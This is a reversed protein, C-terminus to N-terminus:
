KNKDNIKELKKIFSYDELEGVIKQKGCYPCEYILTYHIGFDKTIWKKKFEKQHCSLTIMKLRKNKLFSLGDLGVYAQFTSRLV